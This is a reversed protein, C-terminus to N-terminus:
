PQRMMAILAPMGRPSVNARWRRMRTCGDAMRRQVDRTLSWYADAQDATPSDESFAAQDACRALHLLMAGTTRMSIDNGSPSIADPVITTEPMHRRVTRCPPRKSDIAPHLDCLARAIADAMEQRTYASPIASPMAIHSPIRPRSSGFSADRRVTWLGLRYALLVISVWGAQIRRRPSGRCRASMLLATRCTWPLAVLALLILVPYCCRMIALFVTTVNRLPRNQNPQADQGGVTSSRQPTKEEHPPDTLPVSPQRVIPEDNPASATAQDPTRSADPTAHFAVWGLGELEVETWAAIDGGTFTRTTTHAGADTQHMNRQRSRAASEKHQPLFGMVVRSPLGVHRAMLAMASAYQEDDGVIHEGELMDRLRRNGHGPASPYEGEGGHSFWGSDKLKDALLQAARGQAHIGSVTTTALRELSEPVNVPVPLITGGARADAVRADDHMVPSDDATFGEVMYRLGDWVGCSLISAHTSSNHLVVPDNATSCTATRSDLLTIGTVTGATPLWVDNFNAGITFTATFARKSDTSGQRRDLGTLPWADSANAQRFRRFEHRGTDQHSDPLNWINGDFSEMVALRIPLDDPLGEVTLVTDDRYQNAYARLASLPSALDKISVPPDYYDRAVIRTGSAHICITVSLLGAITLMVASRTIAPSHWLRLFPAARPHLKTRPPIVVTRHRHRHSMQLMLIMAAAVGAEIRHTGTDTGLAACVTFSLLVTVVFWIDGWIDGISSRVGTGHSSSRSDAVSSRLSCSMGLSSWMCIIWLAMLGGDSPGIPPMVTLVHSFAGFHTRWDFAAIIRDSLSGQAPVAVTVVPAIVIQAFALIIIVAPIQTRNLLIQSPQGVHRRRSPRQRDHSSDQSDHEGLLIGATTGLLTAPLATCAWAMFSGYVDILNSAALLAMMFTSAAHHIVTVTRGNRFNRSIAAVATQTGSMM